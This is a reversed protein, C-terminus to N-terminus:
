SLRQAQFTEDDVDGFPFEPFLLTPPVFNVQPAHDVDLLEFPRIQLCIEVIDKLLSDIHRLTPNTIEIM